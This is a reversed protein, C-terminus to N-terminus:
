AADGFTLLGIKALAPIMLVDALLAVILAGPLLSGMMDITLYSSMVFPVFGIVLIVTTMVIARGAFSFTRRLAEDRPHGREREIKFRMLFHITDDVGIGLALLCIIMFDSDATEWTGGVWGVVALLPLLNPIMSLVGVKASKLGLGMMLMIIFASAALGQRQGAIIEDLWNGLLHSLGTVEIKADPLLEEAIRTVETAVRSSARMGEDVLRLSIPAQQRDFDMARDLTGPGQMELLLLEQAAQAATAPLGAEGTLTEHTRAFVDVVSRATDVEPLEAVLRRQLEAMAVLNSPTLLGREVGTDIYANLPNLGNFREALWRADVNAQNDDELRAAFDTEITLQAAGYVALATFAFCAALVPWPRRITLDQIAVLVRDLANQAVATAGQRLPKPEPLWSLLVPVGVLALLLAIGVGFGLIVGMTRFVPTPIASLGLFGVATTASTFLCARGVDEASAYIAAERDKGAEIELLYASILHVVDSFGVILIVAPAIAMLINIEPDLQVAFGMTWLVGIGSVGLAVVAPWLRRFLIWVALALCLSVLPLLHTMNVVSQHFIQELSAILGGLRLDERAWGESEFAASVERVLSLAREGPRRPDVTMAIVLGYADQGGVLVGAGLPDEALARNWDAPDGELALEAYSRIRLGGGEREMSVLDLPSAVFDVDDIADIREVVRRLRAQTAPLLLNPDEFAVYLAEDNGFRTTLEQYRLYEPSDGLFLKGVSSAFVGRSVSWLSVGSIALIVVVVLARHSLLARYFGTM